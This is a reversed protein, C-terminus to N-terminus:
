ALLWKGTTNYLPDLVIMGIDLVKASPTTCAPFLHQAYQQRGALLFPTSLADACM